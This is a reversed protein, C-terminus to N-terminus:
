TDRRSAQPRETRELREALTEAHPDPDPLYAVISAVRVLWGDLTRVYGARDEPPDGSVRYERGDATRIIAM